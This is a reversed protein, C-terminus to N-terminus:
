TKFKRIQFHEKNAGFFMQYLLLGETVNKLWELPYLFGYNIIDGGLM